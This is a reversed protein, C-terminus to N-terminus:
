RRGPADSGGAADAAGWAAPEVRADDTVFEDSLDFWVVIDEDCGCGGPRDDLGLTYLRAREGDAGLREYRLARGWPDLARAAGVAFGSHGVDGNEPFRGGSAQASERLELAQLFIQWRQSCWQESCDNLLVVASYIAGLGVLSTASVVISLDRWFRLTFPGGSPDALSM